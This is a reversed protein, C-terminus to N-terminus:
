GDLGQDWEKHFKESISGKVNVLIPHEPGIDVDYTNTSYSKGVIRGRMPRFQPGQLIVEEKYDSSVALDEQKFITM